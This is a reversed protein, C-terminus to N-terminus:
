RSKRKIKTRYETPTYGTYNKFLKGFYKSKKYGIKESIEYTKLSGSELLKKAEEMRVKILYDIFNEGTEQKFLRSFYASSLSVYSAVDDLCIEKYFNHTIFKKAEIVTKLKDALDINDNTTMNTEFRIQEVNNNGLVDYFSDFKKLVSYSIKIGMMEEIENKVNLFHKDSSSGTEKVTFLYINNNSSNFPIVCMNRDSRKIFNNVANYLTDKGHKWVDRLYDNFNDISVCIVACESREIPFGLKLKAYENKLEYENKIESLILKIIFNEKLDNEEILGTEKTNIVKLLKEVNKLATNFDKKEFPISIYGVAGNDLAIKIHEYSKRGYFIKPIFRECASSKDAFKIPCIILDYDDALIENYTEVCEVLNFETSEWLDISDFLDTVRKADSILVAKYM